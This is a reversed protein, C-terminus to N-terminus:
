MIEYELQSVIISMIFYVIFSHTISFVCKQLPRKPYMSPALLLIVKKNLLSEGQINEELNSKLDNVYVCGYPNSLQTEM